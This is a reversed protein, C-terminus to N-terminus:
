NWTSYYGYHNFYNNTATENSTTNAKRGYFFPVVYGTKQTLDFWYTPSAINIGLYRKMRKGNLITETTNKTIKVKDRLNILGPM